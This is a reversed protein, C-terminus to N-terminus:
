SIRERPDLGEKHLLHCFLKQSARVASHSTRQDSPLASLSWTPNGTTALRGLYRRFSRRMHQGTGFFYYSSLVTLLTRRYLYPLRVTWAFSSTRLSFPSLPLSLLLGFVCFSSSPASLPEM